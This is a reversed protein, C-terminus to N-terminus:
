HEGHPNGSLPVWDGDAQIVRYWEGPAAVWLQVMATSYAPTPGLVALWQGIPAPRDSITLRVRDDLQIWVSWEPTDGEWYALAWGEEQSVVYYWEGPSAVWLLDMDVSYAPTPAVIELWPNAEVPAPPLVPAPVATPEPPPGPTPPPPAVEAPTATAEVVPASRPLVVTLTTAVNNAENSDALAGGSGVFATNTITGTASGVIMSIIFAASGGPPLAPVECTVIQAISIVCGRALFSVTTGAPLPDVITSADAAGAGGNRITISYTVLGGSAVPDPSASM